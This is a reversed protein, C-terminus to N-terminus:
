IRPPRDPSVSPSESWDTLAEPISQLGVSILHAELDEILSEASPKSQFCTWLVSHGKVHALGLKWRQVFGSRSRFSANIIHFKSGHEIALKKSHVTFKGGIMRKITITKPNLVITESGSVNWLLAALAYAMIIAWGLLMIMSLVLSKGPAHARSASDLLMAGGAVLWVILWISILVAGVPHLPPNRITISTGVHIRQEQKLFSSWSIGM